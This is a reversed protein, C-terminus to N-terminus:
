HILIYLQKVKANGAASATRPHVRTEGLTGDRSNTTISLPRKVGGSDCM